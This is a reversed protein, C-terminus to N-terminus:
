LIDLYGRAQVEVPRAGDVVLAHILGSGDLRLLLPQLQSQLSDLTIEDVSSRFVVQVSPINKDLPRVTLFLGKAVSQPVASAIDLEVFSTSSLSEHVSSVDRLSCPEIM